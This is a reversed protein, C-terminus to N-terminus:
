LRGVVRTGSPLPHTSHPGTPAQPSFPWALQVPPPLSLVNHIGPDTPLNDADTRSSSKDVNAMARSVSATLTNPSMPM